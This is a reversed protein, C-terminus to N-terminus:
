VLEDEGGILFIKPGRLVATLFHHGEQLKRRYEKVPYVSPNVDRNLQIQADKLAAVVEAFSVAGVLLVDVDSDARATGKAVSGHILAVQIRDALGKLTTRLVDAVGATKIVLAHLEPFVPCARNAQYFVHQGRRESQLLGSARLREVERQVAGVGKGTLRVIERLYFAKDIQTFFLAVVARRTTGFLAALLNDTGPWTSLM